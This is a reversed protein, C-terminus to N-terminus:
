FRGRLGVLGDPSVIPVVAPATAPAAGGRRGRWLPIAGGVLGGVAAGAVVDTVYHRDAAIRLLGTGAAIAAGVTWVLWAHRYGRLSAVTGAATAMGAAFSTHGSFFSLNREADDNPEGRLRAARADPRERRAILKVVQTLDGAIFAAELVLGADILSARVGGGSSWGIAASLGFASAPGLGYAMANSLADARDRHRWRLARGAEDLANVGDDDCWTCSGLDVVRDVFLDSALWMTGAGITIAGDRVPDFTLEEATAPIGHTLLVLAAVV